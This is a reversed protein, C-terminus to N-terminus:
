GNPYWRGDRIARLRVVEMYLLVKTPTPYSKPPSVNHHWLWKFIPRKWGRPIGRVAHEWMRREYIDLARAASEPTANPSHTM